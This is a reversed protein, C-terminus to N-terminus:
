LPYKNITQIVDATGFDTGILRLVECILHLNKLMIQNIQCNKDKQKIIFFRLKREKSRVPFLNLHHNSSFVYVQIFDCFNLMDGQFKVSKNNKNNEVTLLALYLSM